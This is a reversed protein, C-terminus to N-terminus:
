LAKPAAEPAQQQPMMMQPMGAPMGGTQEFYKEDEVVNYKKKLDGIKENYIKMAKERELMNSLGEKVEDFSRYQTDEKSLLVVVWYKNDSTEAMFAKPYEAKLSLAKEKIAKDVDFSHSNIPAFDKVNSAGVVSAFQTPNEQVKNLVSQAKEKSDFEAGQSKIGGPSVVLEPDKHANYYDKMEKETVSVKGILDKEFQKAALGTKVMRVAQELEKQYNPDNHIGNKEGWALLIRENVMGNFIEKKANPMFQIMSQLRPNAEIFQTFYEEFSRETVVPKGDISLLVPSGDNVSATESSASSVTTSSGSSGMNSKIYDFIACGPLILLSSLTLGLVGGKIAIKSKM